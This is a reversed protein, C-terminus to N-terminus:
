AAQQEQEQMMQGLDALAPASQGTMQSFSMAASQYFAALPTDDGDVSALLALCGAVELVTYDAPAKCLFTSVDPSYDCYDVDASTTGFNAATANHYIRTGEISYYPDVPVALANIRLRRVVDLSMLSAPIGNIRVADLPGIHSPLQANNTLATTLIFDRRRGNNPDLLISRVVQGDYSLIMDRIGNGTLRMNAAPTPTYTGSVAHATQQVILSRVLNIDVVSM